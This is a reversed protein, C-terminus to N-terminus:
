SSKNQTFEKIEKLETYATQVKAISEPSLKITAECDTHNCGFQKGQLLLEIDMHINGQCSPCPIEVHKM